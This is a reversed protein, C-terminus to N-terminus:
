ARIAMRDHRIKDPRALSATAPAAAPVRTLAVTRGTAPSPLSAASCTHPGAAPRFLAHLSCHM